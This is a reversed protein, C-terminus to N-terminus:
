PCAPSRGRLERLKARLRDGRAKCEEETLNSVEGRANRQRGEDLIALLDENYVAHDQELRATLMMVRRHVGSFSQRM